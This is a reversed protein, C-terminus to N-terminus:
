LKALVHMARPLVECARVNRSFAFDKSLFNISVRIDMSGANLSSEQDFINESLEFFAPSNQSITLLNLDLQVGCCVSGSLRFITEKLLGDFRDSEFLKM